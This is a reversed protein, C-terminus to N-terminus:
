GMETEHSLGKLYLVSMLVSQLTEMFRLYPSKIKTQLRVEAVLLYGNGAQSEPTNEEPSDIGVSAQQTM